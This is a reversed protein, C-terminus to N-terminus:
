PDRLRGSGTSVGGGGMRGGKFAAPSVCGDGADVENALAFVGQWLCQDNPVDPKCSPSSLAAYDIEHTRVGLVDFIHECLVRETSKSAFGDGRTLSTM